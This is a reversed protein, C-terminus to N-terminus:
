KWLKTQWDNISQKILHYTDIFVERSKKYPDPIEVNQWKALLHVKGCASPFFREIEKRHENEMVLVLDAATLMERTLQKARHSSCDINKDQLIAQVHQDAPRGQLAGIGASSISLPLGAQEADYKLIAEAMPSRCINGVCVILINRFM